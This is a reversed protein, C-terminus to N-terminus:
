LCDEVVSEPLGLEAVLTGLTPRDPAIVDIWRFGPEAVFVERRVCGSDSLIRM